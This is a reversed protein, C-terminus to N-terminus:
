KATEIQIKTVEDTQRFEVDYGSDERIEKAQIIKKSM